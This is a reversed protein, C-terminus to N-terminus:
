TLNNILHSSSGPPGLGLSEGGTWAATNEAGTSRGMGGSGAIGGGMRGDYSEM